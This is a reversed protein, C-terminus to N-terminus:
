GGGILEDSHLVVSMAFGKWKCVAELTLIDTVSLVPLWSRDQNEILLWTDMPLSVWGGSATTEEDM